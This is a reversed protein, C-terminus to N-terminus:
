EVDVYIVQLIRALVTRLHSLVHLLVPTHATSALLLYSPFIFYINLCAPPCESGVQLVGEIGNNYDRTTFHEVQQHNEALFQAQIRRM